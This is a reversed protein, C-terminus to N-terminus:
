PPCTRWKAVVSGDFAVFQDRATVQDGGLRVVGAGPLPIIFQLEARQLVFDRGDDAGAPPPDGEDDGSAVAKHLGDLDVIEKLLLARGAL